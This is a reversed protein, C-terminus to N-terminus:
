YNLIKSEILQDYKTVPNIYINNGTGKQKNTYEVSKAIKNNLTNVERRLINILFNLFHKKNKM